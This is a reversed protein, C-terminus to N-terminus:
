ALTLQAQEVAMRIAVAEPGANLIGRSSTPIVQPYSSGFIRRLDAPTGGQAGFGPALISGGLENLDLGITPDITAGVVVGVSGWEGAATADANHGAAANIVSQSITVGASTRAQQVTAGEPNSTAALLYVGRGTQRALEIAGDLSGAGLFPSLTIADAALPSGDALYAAAYADMTSGIDGRKADLLVLLGAERADVLLRELVAIGASGYAEFFASQPKVIAVRGAVAEIMTRACRELGTVDRPLEWHDLVGPHPDIGVCLRGHKEVALRLREGFTRTPTIESSNIKTM